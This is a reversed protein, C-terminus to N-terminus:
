RQKTLWQNYCSNFPNSHWEAEFKCFFKTGAPTSAAARDGQTLDEGCNACHVTAAQLKSNVCTSLTNQIM